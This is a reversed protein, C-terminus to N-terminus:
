TRPSTTARRPRGTRSSRCPTRTSPRPTSTRRAASSATSTSSARARPGSASRAWRARRGSRAGRPVQRVAGDLLRQAEADRGAARLHQPHMSNYGPASTAMETIAGMGVTHHNRGTLLAARTPSCLAGHHPLPQVQLGNAPSASRPRRPSRAASRARPASASTTSCCSSCTPHARPRACRSSPRSPRTRTRPTTPRSGSTSAITSRCSAAPTATRRQKADPVLEKGFRARTVSARETSTRCM